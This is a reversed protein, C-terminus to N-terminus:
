EKSPLTFTQGVKFEQVDLEDTTWLIKYQNGTRGKQKTSKAHQGATM